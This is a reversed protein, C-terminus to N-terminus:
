EARYQVVKGSRMRRPSTGVNQDTLSNRIRGMEVDGSEVMNGQGSEVGDMGNFLSSALVSLESNSESDLEQQQRNVIEWARAVQEYYISSEAQDAADLAADESADSSLDSSSSSNSSDILLDREQARQQRGNIALAFRCKRKNHGVIHCKSCKTEKRKLAGKRLRKTIPRGRQKKFVLPLVTSTSKLNEISLPQLFHKYTKRYLLTTYEKAFLKYPDEEKHRCAVIAHACLSRYEQFLTCDCTEEKLNVIHKKRSDPIQVQYISNGSAFM